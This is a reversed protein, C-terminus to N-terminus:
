NLLEVPRLWVTAAEVPPMSRLKEDQWIEIAVEELQATEVTLWREHLKEGCRAIWQSPTMEDM